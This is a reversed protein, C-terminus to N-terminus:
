RLPILGQEDQREVLRAAEMVVDGWGQSRARIVQSVGLSRMITLLVGERQSDPHDYESEASIM